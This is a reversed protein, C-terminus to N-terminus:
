KERPTADRKALKRVVRDVKNNQIGNMKQKKCKECKDKRVSLLEGHGKEKTECSKIM